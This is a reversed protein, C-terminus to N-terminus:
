KKTKAALSTSKKLAYEALLERDAAALDAGFEKLAQAVNKTTTCADIADHAMQMLAEPDADTQTSTEVPEAEDTEDTLQPPPDDIIVTHGEAPLVASTLGSVSEDKDLAERIEGSIPVLGRKVLAVIATKFAMTSWHKHWPSDRKGSKEARKWGQSFQEKHYDIEAATWVARQKAGGRLHVIVYIHTIPSEKRKPDDSPEHHIAAQDGKIQRFRDCAHVVECDIQTVEGSRRMMDILGRYGPILTCTDKYPVLYAQSLPGGIEWGYFAAQRIASLQSDMSCDLLQPNDRFAMMASTIMRNASVHRPAGEFLREKVATM